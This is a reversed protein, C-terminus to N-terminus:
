KSHKNIFYDQGIKWDETFESLGHSQHTISIGTVGIKLGRERFIDCGLLDYYHFKSPCKEDFEARDIANKNLAMFVGDIYLVRQPYTGFSTMRKHGDHIHGAFGHLNPSNFGGGMLHWLAPEKIEVRSCGAVGIVDYHDFYQNLNPTPDHELIVDDHVFIVADYDEEREKLLKNYVKALPEKNESVFLVDADLGINQISQWLLTDKIDSKQTATCIALNQINM